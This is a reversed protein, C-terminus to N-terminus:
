SELYRMILAAAQARTATATPTVAGNEDGEVLGINMAWTMADTAWTSVSAADPATITGSVAPEGALRYLMTVLEQRTIAASPNEGDSIGKATVWEQAKAYWTAGGTTDVGEARAIITWVMARTLTDNPAFVGVDVGDMLGKEYVYKVASYYWDRATVDYFPFVPTDPTEPESPKVDPLNGWVATFTANSTIDVSEGASYTADGSRWGLFIYGSNSPAEPLTFGEGKVVRYVVDAAGNGSKVTVFWNNPFSGNGEIINVTNFDDDITKGYDVYSGNNIFRGGFLQITGYNTLTVGVPIILNEGERLVLVYDKPLTVDGPLVADGYAQGTGDEFVVSNNLTGGNQLCNDTILWSDNIYVWDGANIAGYDTSNSRATVISNSITVADQWSYIAHYGNNESLVESNTISIPGNECYIPVPITSTYVKVTSDNFIIEYWAFIAPADTDSVVTLSSSDVRLNCTEACSFIGCSNLTVTSGDAISVTTPVFDAREAYETQLACSAASVAKVNSGSIAINGHASQITVGSSSCDVTSGKIEIDNLSYISTSNSTAPPFATVNSNEITVESGWIASQGCTCSVDAGNQLSVSGSTTQIGIGNNGESHIDLKAEDIIIDGGNYASYIGCKGNYCTISLSGEGSITLSNNNSGVYIGNSSSDNTIIKNEGVLVIKLDIKLNNGVSIANQCHNIIDTGYDPLTITANTLTLTKSAEDYVATGDGCNVTTKSANPNNADFLVVDNVILQGSSTEYAGAGVCLLLAFVATLLALMLIKRKM